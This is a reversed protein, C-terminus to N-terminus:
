PLLGEGHGRDRTRSGQSYVASRAPRPVRPVALDFSGWFFHVPSAKGIFGTRFKKFVRDVQVLARWFRWAAHPDYSAHTRDDSLLVAGAIECPRERIQVEIGLDALSRIVIAYFECVPQAVLPLRRREGKSSNIDLTHDIFDFQMEFVEDRYPIVSTSLGRATVYLPVHWSHNLWPTLALRIKGAIQTWLHRPDRVDAAMGPVPSAPGPPTVPCPRYYIVARSVAASQAGRLLRVGRLAAPRQSLQGAEIAQAVDPYARRYAEEDVAVSRVFMRLVELLPSNPDAARPDHSLTAVVQEYSPFDHGNALLLPEPSFGLGPVLEAERELAHFREAIDASNWTDLPVDEDSPLGLRREASRRVTYDVGLSEHGFLLVEPEEPLVAQGTPAPDRRGQAYYMDTLADPNFLCLKDYVDSRVGRTISAVLLTEAEPFSESVM